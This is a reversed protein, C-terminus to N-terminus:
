KLNNPITVEFIMMGNEQKATISGNHQNCIRMAISLGIGSGGTNSNRSPDARYFRDFLRMCDIGPKNTDTNAISFVTSRLTKNLTILVNGSEKAYKTCNDFLISVLRDIGSSNANLIVSDEINSEVKLGRSEFVDKYDDIKNNVLETFNVPNLKIQEDLEESKALYLLEGILGNLDRVQEKIKKTWEKNEPNKYDLVEANAAIVSLPTKLEHGADTIFTKQRKSNEIFPRMAFKSAFWFVVSIIISLIVCVSFVVATTTWVNNLYLKEDLFVIFKDNESECYRYRYDNYFGTDATKNHLIHLAMDKATHSDVSAISDLFTDSPNGFKDFHVVFYRTTYETENDIDLNGLFIDAINNEVKFNDQKPFRGNGQSILETLKDSDHICNLM